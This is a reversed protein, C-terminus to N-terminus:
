EGAIKRPCPRHSRRKRAAGRGLCGAALVPGCAPGLGGAVARERRRRASEPLSTSLDEVPWLTNVVAPAGAQLFGAPLGLYEDPSQRIDTLGTECASLTVLRCAGLDLETIIKSLTLSQKGALLLGSQMPDQWAYLGHCSFHLYQCGPVTTTVAEVGAKDGELSQSDSFLATVVKGEAPTFPLDQTPNIVALLRHGQRKPERLHRRGVSLADGSPVYSLTWDDLFYRRQGDRVRWAAHVPLLGLSDQPMFVM